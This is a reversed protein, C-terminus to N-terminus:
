RGLHAFYRASVGALRAIRRASSATVTTPIHLSRSEYDGTLYEIGNTVTIWHPRICPTSDCEIASVGDCQATRTEHLAVLADRLTASELVYGSEAFDGDTASEETVIDYTVAFRTNSM